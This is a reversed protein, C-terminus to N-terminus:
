TKILDKDQLQKVIKQLNIGKGVVPSWLDGKKDIRKLINNITFDSPHLKKNVEKWELPTSVTAGPKPRLSYPAALTQGRSNQLYDIYVKGQRRKPSREISTIEPLLMHINQAIVQAFKRVINYDYKAGLPLYIHLGTAGSTKCHCEAELSDLFKKVQNAVEVVYIFDIKEPDLDIVLWDPNEIKKIRSNWPNIEICGLNAMYLLTEKNNCLLYDVNEKTSESFISQTKIWAPSKDVDVDKQYFGPANIGNPFRNMSQPRDWLYPLIIEAVDDYYKVVDGKTIGDGPFYIKQQNTLHLTVKGVKLDINKVSGSNKKKKLKVPPTM